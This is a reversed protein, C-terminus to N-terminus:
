YIYIYIYIYKTIETKIIDFVCYYRYGYLIIYQLKQIFINLLLINLSENITLTDTNPTWKGM